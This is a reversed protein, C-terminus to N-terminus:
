RGSCRSDINVGKLDSKERTDEMWVDIPKASDTEIHQFTRPVRGWSSAPTTTLIQYLFSSDRKALEFSEGILEIM